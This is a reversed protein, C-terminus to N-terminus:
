RTVARWSLSNMSFIMTGRALAGCDNRAYLTDLRRSSSMEATQAAKLKRRSFPTILSARTAKPPMAAIGLRALAQSATNRPAGNLLAVTSRAQAARASSKVGSESKRALLSYRRSLACFRSRLYKMSSCVGCM